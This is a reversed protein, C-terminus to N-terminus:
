GAAGHRLTMLLGKVKVCQECDAEASDCPVGDAQIEPCRPERVYDILALLLDHMLERLPSPPIDRLCSVMRWEESNLRVTVAEQEM